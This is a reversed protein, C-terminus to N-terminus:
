NDVVEQAMDRIESADRPPALADQFAGEGDFFMLVGATSVGYQEAFAQGEPTGLDAVIFSVGAREEESLGDLQDMIGMSTPNATEHTLVGIPEGQGIRTLDTSFGGGPLSQWILGAAGFIIGLALLWSAWRPLNRPRQKKGGPPGQRTEAM